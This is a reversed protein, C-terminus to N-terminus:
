IHLIWKTHMILMCHMWIHEQIRHKPNRNRHGTLEPSKRNRKISCQYMRKNKSKWKGGIIENMDWGESKYYYEELKEMQKFVM